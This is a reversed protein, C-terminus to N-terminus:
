EEIELPKQELWNRGYSVEAKIPLQCEIGFVSELLLPVAEMTDKVLKSITYLMEEEIDLIISDHVTNILLCKNELGKAYIRERLLGLIFPVIDGTAYGQVPYNKIETPSFQTEEAVWDPADYEQFRYKRGTMSCIWGTAASKGTKTKATNILRRDKVDAINFDQWEKVEKYRDYYLTIFSM